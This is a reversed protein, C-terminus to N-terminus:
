LFCPVSAEESPGTDRCLWNLHWMGLSTRETNSRAEWDHPQSSLWRLRVLYRSGPWGHPLALLEQNKVTAQSLWNQSAWHQLWRPLSSAPLLDRERVSKGMRHEMRGELHISFFDEYFVKFFNYLSSNPTGWKACLILPFLLWSHIYFIKTSPSTIICLLVHSSIFLFHCFLFSSMQKRGDQHKETVLLLKLAPVLLVSPVKRWQSHLNKKKWDWSM